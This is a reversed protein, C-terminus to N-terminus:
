SGKRLSRLEASELWRRLLAQGSVSIDTGDREVAADPLLAALSETIGKAREEVAQSARRSAIIGAKRM